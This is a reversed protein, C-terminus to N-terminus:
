CAMWARFPECSSPRCSTTFSARGCSFRESLLSLLRFRQYDDTKLLFSVPADSETQGQRQIHALDLERKNPERFGRCTMAVGLHGM